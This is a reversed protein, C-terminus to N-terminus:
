KALCLKPLGKGEPALRSGTTELNSSTEFGDFRVSVSFRDKAFAAQFPIEALEACPNLDVPLLTLL